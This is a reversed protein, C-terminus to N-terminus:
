KVTIRGEVERYTDNFGVEELYTKLLEIDVFENDSIKECDRFITNGDGSSFLMYSIGGVSYKKNLDIPVYEDNELVYVDKVRRNDNAFGAFMNNSDFTVCSEVSTDITYKLGSVQIFGGFEGVSNGDLKYIRETNQAGFELADVIQQGTAYCSGGNNQFPSVDFLNRYLVEGAMINSRVGGGNVVAIDTGLAYRYADAVFNAVTSERARGFRVGEDDVIKMDYDLDCIKVSLTEDVVKDANELAKLVSEDKRNYEEIHLTTVSGDTGLILEGVAQLKTGVSCLVVDKGDKNPYKDEVIMSHSHGDLVADIGSTHSILSVSDFPTYEPTSGLHTLAVVYKVKQKRVEDVVSQVREYLENGNDGSYFNYVYEHDEMFYKPTSDTISYPTAVGIFAVKVGGYDKIVYGPTDAFASENKGSYKVNCLVYDFNSEKMREKLTDMGYDFEHNGVTVIEYGTDNMLEIILKGKSLSGVSGGQLFDGGDVLTVYQHNAKEDDVLAKVGALTMNEEVGCHVDSTYLIYIDEKQKVEMCGVVSFLIGVILLVSIIRKM